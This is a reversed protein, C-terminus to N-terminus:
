RGSSVPHWKVSRSSSRFLDMKEFRQARKPNKSSPCSFFVQYELVTETKFFQTRRSKLSEGHELHQINEKPYNGPTHLKYASTESCQEIKVPLHAHTSHVPNSPNQYVICLLKVETM